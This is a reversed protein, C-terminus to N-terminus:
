GPATWRGAADAAWALVKAAGIDARSVSRAIGERGPPIRAAAVAHTLAPAGDHILRRQHLLGRLCTTALPTDKAGYAMVPTAPHWKRLLGIGVVLLRPEWVQCVRAADVLSPVVVGTAAWRGQHPWVVAAAFGADCDRGQDDVAVVGAGPPPVGIERDYAAAWVAGPVLEVAAVAVNPTMTMTMTPTM